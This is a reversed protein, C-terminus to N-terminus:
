ESAARDKAACLRGDGVDFACSAVNAVDKNPEDLMAGRMKAIVNM